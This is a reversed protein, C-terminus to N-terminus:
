QVPTFIYETVGSGLVVQITGDKTEEFQISLGSIPADLAIYYDLTTTDDVNMVPLIATYFEGVDMVFIGNELKFTVEGLDDNQYSGVYNQVVDVNVSEQMTEPAQLQSTMTDVAFTAIEADAEVDVNDFVLDFLRTRILSNFSNSARANTLVVIGLGTDPLFSLDSTFGLTNGNHQIMSLGEYNTVIWGLGYSAEASISVQPNRTVLLNEESVVRTGDVAVGKNLQMILYNAMDEATSWHTGAPAVPLLIEEVSLPIPAYEFGAILTHPTAYENREQVTDFSMTTQSMGVPDLVRNQLESAYATDLDGWTGGMAVTTVYGGTAVMQNSYQFAEGFDTFMEFTSLSEVMDEASMDHANFTFEFDRRPVGTCACVLNSVTIQQTLEPDAVKFLPLVDVVPTDWDMLGDDVAIAMMTTTLSKGTSGIMMHTDTTMPQDGGLERVGFAGRYVVAGDQVIAVVAGPIKFQPMLVHIYEELADTITGDVTLAETGTLNNEQTGTIKYGSSIIGIQANRRQIDVLAGEVLLLYVQEDVTQALVQHFRDDDELKYNVVLTSEIPARSPPELTGDETATFDPNVQMWTDTIVTMVNDQVPKVEFYVKITGEPSVVTVYTDSEELIWETPIPFSFRGEPDKYTQDQATAIGVTMTLIVTMVILCFRILIPHSKRSEKDILQQLKPNITNM